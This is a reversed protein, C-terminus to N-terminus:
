YLNDVDAAFSLLVMCIELMSFVDNYRTTPSRFIHYRGVGHMHGSPGKKKQSKYITTKKFTKLAM